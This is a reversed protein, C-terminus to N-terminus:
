DSRKPVWSTIDVMLACAALGLTFYLFELLLLLLDIDINNTETLAKHIYFWPSASVVLLMIQLGSPSRKSAPKMRHKYSINLFDWVLILWTILGSHSYARFSVAGLLGNRSIYCYWIIHAVSATTTTAVAICASNVLGQKWGRQTANYSRDFYSPSRFSTLNRHLINWIITALPCISWLVPHSYFSEVLSLAAVQM